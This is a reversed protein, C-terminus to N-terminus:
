GSKGSRNPLIEGVRSRIILLAFGVMTTIEGMSPPGMYLLSSGAAGAAGVALSAWGFAKLWVVARQRATLGRQLPCTRELKNLAEALVIIGALTHLTFLCATNM